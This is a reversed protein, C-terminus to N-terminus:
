VGRGGSVRAGGKRGGRGDERKVEENAGAVNGRHTELRTVRRENAEDDGCNEECNRERFFIPGRSPAGTVAAVVLTAMALLSLAALRCSLDIGRKWIPLM